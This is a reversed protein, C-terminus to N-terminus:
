SDTNSLLTVINEQMLRSIQDPTGEINEPIFASLYTATHCDQCNALLFEEATSVSAFSQQSFTELSRVLRHADVKEIEYAASAANDLDSQFSSEANMVFSVFITAIVAATGVIALANSFLTSIDFNTATARRENIIERGKRVYNESPKALELQSLEREFNEISDLKNTKM